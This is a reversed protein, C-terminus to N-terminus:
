PSAMGNYHEVLNPSVRSGGIFSVSSRTLVMHLSLSNPLVLAPKHSVVSFLITRFDHISENQTETKYLASLLGLIFLGLVQQTSLFITLM